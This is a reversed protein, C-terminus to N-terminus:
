RVDGGASAAAIQPTALPLPTANATTAAAARVRAICQRWSVALAVLGALECAAGVWGISTVSGLAVVGSGLAAGASTGVYVSSSYLSLTVPALAPELRVLRTQQAPPLAWGVLGWVGVAVVVV